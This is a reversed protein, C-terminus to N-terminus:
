IREYPELYDEQLIDFIDKENSLPIKEDGNFLGYENLKMKLEIAKNRMRVNFDASGTFYMLATPYSDYEIIRIDLRRAKSDKLPLICTGMFKITAKPTILGDKLLIKEEILEEIIKTMISNKIIDEKNLFSPHTILIDMDGCDPKIRRYSGCIEYIFGLKSFVKDFVIKYQDVEERPIRENFDEYYKIGIEIHETMLKKVEDKEINERLSEITYIGLENLKKIRTNGLGSIKKFKSSQKNDKLIEKEDKLIKLTGTKLIEDIKEGISKGIGKIKLAEKKSQINGNEKQYEDILKVAKKISNKQFQNKTSDNQYQMDLKQFIPLIKESNTSEM